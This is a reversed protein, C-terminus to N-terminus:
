MALNGACIIQQMHMFNRKCLRKDYRLALLLIAGVLRGYLACSLQFILYNQAVWQECLMQNAYLGFRGVLILELISRQAPLTARTVPALEPIPAAMARERAWFPIFTTAHALLTSLIWSMAFPCFFMQGYLTNYLIMHWYYCKIFLNLLIM